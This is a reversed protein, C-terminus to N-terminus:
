GVVAFRMGARELRTRLADGMAAATTTQGRTEPLEDHALCLASEALMKATETYGPDGGSVECVVQAGGPLPEGGVAVERGHFRVKFWSAARTAESPGQGSGLRSTLAKRVPGLQAAAVLAPMAISACVATPLRKVWAYHGYTFDPGYRELARASRLVIQPDITPLPLAWGIEGGVHRPLPKEGRVRRGDPRAESERRAAAARQTSRMRSFATLASDLTGGSFRAGARVFGEVKLPVDEPLQQVTFLAGLDHPISDFGCSHVLRAGSAVAAAHHRVYTLDVFEPEGTLDVYDTGAAACAAVLPEGYRIYPGVTTAVVRTSEALARLSAPDDVDAHLLPVDVGLREALARLKDRDRGALAWRTPADGGPAGVDGGEADVGAAASGAADAGAAAGGGAGGVARALYEATLGGTFGTAGILVVDHEREPRSAM